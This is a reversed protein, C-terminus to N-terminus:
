CIQYLIKALLKLQFFVGPVAPNGVKIVYDRM